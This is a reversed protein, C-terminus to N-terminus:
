FQRIMETVCRPGEELFLDAKSTDFLGITGCCTGGDARPELIVAPGFLPSCEVTVRGRSDLQMLTGCAVTTSRECVAEM